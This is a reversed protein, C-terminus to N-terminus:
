FKTRVMTDYWMHGKGSARVPTGNAAAEKVISVMEDVSTVNHVSAVDNCAPFGPGDFTNYPGASVGVACALWLLQRIASLM